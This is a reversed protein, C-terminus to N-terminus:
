SNILPDCNDEAVERYPYSDGHEHEFEELSIEDM